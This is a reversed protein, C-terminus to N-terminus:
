GGYTTPPSITAPANPPVPAGPPLNSITPLPLLKTNTAFTYKGCIIPGEVKTNSGSLNITSTPDCLVGGQFQNNTGSFDVAVANTKRTIFLINDSNPSWEKSVDSFACQHTPTAPSAPCGAHLSTNTGTFDFTGNAYITALGHYMSNTASSTINGDFFITGSVNLIHTSTSYSIQGTSTVCNYTSGTIDFTPATGDMTTNNDFTSSSLVPAPTLSSDCGHKPGPSANLYWSAFDTTPPTATIPTDTNTVFWKDSATCTHPTPNSVTICGGQVLGSSLYKTALGVTSNSGSYQLTGGVRVDVAQGGNATNDIIQANTGTLCLDGTVYVPVDLITNTGSLTLECGSGQPATAYVYNWVSINNSQGGGTVSIVATITRRVHANGNPNLADGTSTITWIGTNGSQSFMGHYYATGNSMVVTLDTCPAASVLPNSPDASCGLLTPSSANNSSQNLIAEANNVGAEALAYAVQGSNSVSAQRQSSSSYDMASATAISLVVIFGLALVLAIGDESRADIRQSIRRSLAAIGM